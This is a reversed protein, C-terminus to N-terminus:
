GFWPVTNENVGSGAGPTEPVSVTSRSKPPAGLSAAIPYTSQEPKLPAQRCARAVGILQEEGAM